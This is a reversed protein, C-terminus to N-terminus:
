QTDALEGSTCMLNSFRRFASEVHGGTCGQGWQVGGDGGDATCLRNHEQLQRYLHHLQKSSVAAKARIKEFNRTGGGWGTETAGVILGNRM